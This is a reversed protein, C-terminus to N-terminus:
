IINRFYAVLDKDQSLDRDKRYVKYGECYLLHQQSDSKGCATCKWLEAKFARDSQFNM